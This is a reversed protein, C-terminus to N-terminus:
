EEGERMDAGCNPCFNTNDIRLEFDCESCYGVGFVHPKAVWHGKRQERPTVRPLERIKDMSKSVDKETISMDFDYPISMLNGMIEFVDTLSVADKCPEQELAKIASDLTELWEQTYSDDGACDEYEEKLMEIQEERTM